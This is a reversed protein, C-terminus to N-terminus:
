GGQAGAAGAHLWDAVLMTDFGVSHAACTSANRSLPVALTLVGILGSTAIPSSPPLRLGGLAGGVVGERV